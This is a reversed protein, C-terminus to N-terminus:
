EKMKASATAMFLWATTPEEILTTIYQREGFQELEWSTIKADDISPDQAIWILYKAQSYQDAGVPKFGLVTLFYRYDYGLPALNTERTVFVSFPQTHLLENVGAQSIAVATDRILSIPRVSNAFFHPSHYLNFATIIVFIGTTMVQWWAPKIKAFWALWVLHILVLLPFFYHMAVQSRALFILLLTSLLASSALHTLRTADDDILLQRPNRVFYIIGIVLGMWALSFWPDILKLIVMFNEWPNASTSPANVLNTNQTFAQYSKDIFTNKLQVFDHKVEFLLFPAFSVFFGLGFIFSKFLITKFDTKMKFRNIFSGSLWLPLLISLVIFHFNVIIGWLFGYVLLWKFKKRWFWSWSIILLPLFAVYSFANGPQRISFFLYPTLGIFYIALSAFFLGTKWLKMIMIGALVLALWAIFVNAFILSEPFMPWFKVLPAYLYYYYPGAHIGGFSLKPGLLRLDGGAIARMDILDRGFDQDMSYASTVNHLGLMLLPWLLIPLLWVKQNIKELISM